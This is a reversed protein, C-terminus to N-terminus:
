LDCSGAVTRAMHQGLETPLVFAALAGEEWGETRVSQLSFARGKQVPGCLLAAHAEEAAPSKSVNM